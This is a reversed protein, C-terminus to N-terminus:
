KAMSNFHKLMAVSIVENQEIKVRDSSLGCVMIQEKYSNEGFFRMIANQKEFQDTLGNKIATHYIEGYNHLVCSYNNTDTTINVNVVYWGNVINFEASTINGLNISKFLDDATGFVLGLKKNKAFLQNDKLQFILSIGNVTITHKPAKSEQPKTEQMSSTQDM